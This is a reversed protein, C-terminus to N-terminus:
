FGIWRLFFVYCFFCLRILKRFDSGPWYVKTRASFQPWWFIKYCRARRCILGRSLLPSCQGTLSGRMIIFVFLLESLSFLTKDRSWPQWIKRPGFMGFHSFYVLDCCVIGFLWLNYWTATFYELHNYFICVYEIKLGGFNVWLPIKPKFIFWRAVRSAVRFPV